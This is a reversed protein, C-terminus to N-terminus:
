FVYGVSFTLALGGLGARFATGTVEDGLTYRYNTARSLITEFYPGARLTIDLFIGNSFVWKKGLLAGISYARIEVDRKQSDADNMTTTGTQYSIFAGVYFTDFAKSFLWRMQLMGDHKKKNQEIGAKFDAGGELFLSLFWFQYEYNLAIKGFKFPDELINLDIFRVGIAHKSEFRMIEFKELEVTNITTNDSVNRESQMESIEAIDGNIAFSYVNERIRMTVYDVSLFICTGYVLGGRNLRLTLNADTGCRTKAVALNKKQRMLFQERESEM